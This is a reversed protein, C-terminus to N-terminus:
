SHDSVHRLKGTQRITCSTLYVLLEIDLCKEPFVTQFILCLTSRCYPTGWKKRQEKKSRLWLSGWASPVPFCSETVLLKGLLLESFNLEGGYTGPCVLMKQNWSQCM